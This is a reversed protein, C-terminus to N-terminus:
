CEGMILLLYRIFFASIKILEFSVFFYLLHSIECYFIDRAM